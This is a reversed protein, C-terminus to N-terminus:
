RIMATLLLLNVMWRCYNVAKTEITEPPRFFKDAVKKEELLAYQVHSFKLSLFFILTASHTVMRLSRSLTAYIPCPRLQFVM